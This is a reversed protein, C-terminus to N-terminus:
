APNNSINLFPLMTKETVPTFFLERVKEGIDRYEKIKAPSVALYKNIAMILEITSFCETMIDLDLNSLINQNLVTQRGLFIVPKGRAVAEVMSGSNSSITISVQNLAEQMNGRFVQFRCPWDCDGFAKVLDKIDYDPHGKIQITVTDKIQNLGEKLVELMEVAEAIDFPLLVLISKKEEELCSNIIENNFVHSYRLAAAPSCSIDKTFLKAVQCRYQSTELLIDPTMKAEVESQSPYLSLFNQSCLFLQAGIIKAQPFVRRSGAILAKNIAQNEYWIIVHKPKFGARGLRLFLRYTLVAQIELPLSQQKKEEELIDSLDFNRFPVAEIRQWLARLPYILSVFYDSFHLFDEQIIFHTSSQRMRQYISLYNFRFGYLVPHVIVHIRKELLYEHLYPFYRDEFIGGNSLSYDHIYTDVIIPLTIKLDKTKYKRRSIYAAVWRLLLIIAFKSWKLFSFLYHSLSMQKALYWYVYFTKVKISKESAWKQIAKSLGLSEVIILNPTSNQNVWLRELIELYCCYQFLDSSYINRSSISGFWWELHRGYSRNLSDIWRVHEHRIDNAVDDHLKAIDIRKFRSGWKREIDRRAFFDKGLYLWSISDSGPFLRRLKSINKAPFTLVLHYKSM